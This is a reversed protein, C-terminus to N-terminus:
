AVVECALDMFDARTALPPVSKIQFATSGVLFRMGSTLGSRSRIRVSAKVVSTEAGAKITELGTLYRVNAWVQAVNVWAGTPGGAEDQGTPLSQLWGLTDLSRADM